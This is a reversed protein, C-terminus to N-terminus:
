DGFYVFLERLEIDFFYVAGDFFHVSSRFLCKELSSMCIAWLCSFSSLMVLYQTHAHQIAETLDLEKCCKPSYGVLSRQGHSEGPLVVPTPRWARRRWSIKGVWPYFGHRRCQCAPEKGSAGSPLGENIVLSICILQVKLFFDLACTGLSPSPHVNPKAGLYGEMQRNIQRDRNALSPTSPHPYGGLVCGWPRETLEQNM